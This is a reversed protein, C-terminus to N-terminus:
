SGERIVEATFTFLQAGKWGDKHLGAKTALNELYATIDWGQEQPVQPLFVATNQGKVLYLGHRGIRIDKVDRLPEFPSLVSVEVEMDKLEEKKLPQFRPDRSSAAVANSIVSRYLPMVPQMNGICGRLSGHRNITVFTAGNAALRRDQVEVEPIRGTSIFDNITKKALSLLLAKEQGTLGSRFIGISAYGVVRARDGTVDGSNAYQFLVGNTAGLNKAVALTYLVPYGGCMEGERSLILRELEDAALREVAATVKRDMMVATKYDHYHSLDSSAIIIATNDRRLLDTLKATLHVYSEKTPTGILIPVVRFETLVQQLFPLQVEISHEKDYAERLFSVGAADNIMEAALKEDIKVLGLPTKLSGRAYVSAGSFALHHSPGILVVTRIDRNRLQKYGFAAIQGSYEYGAHPSVLAVLKGEVPRTEAADLMTSVTERLVRGDAPYFSGAVSPEKIQETCSAICCALVVTVTMLVRAKTM